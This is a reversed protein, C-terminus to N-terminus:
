VEFICLECVQGNNVILSVIMLCFDKNQYRPKRLFFIEVGKKLKTLKKKKVAEEPYGYNVSSRSKIEWFYLKDNFVSILDIEGIRYTFNKAIIKHGLNNTLYLEFWVEGFCGLHHLKSLLKQKQRKTLNKLKPNKLM